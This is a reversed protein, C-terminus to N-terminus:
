KEEKMSSKDKKERAALEQDSLWESDLAPNGDGTDISLIRSFTLLKEWDKPDIQDERLQSPVMTFADDFVVHFQPLISNTRINQILGVMSSHRKSFGLFQGCQSKPQWRQTKKGDQIKPDLVYAPCGWVHASQL